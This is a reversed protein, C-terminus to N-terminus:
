VADRKILTDDKFKYNEENDRLQSDDITLKNRNKM